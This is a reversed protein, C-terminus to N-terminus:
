GGVGTLVGVRRKRVEHSAAARGRGVVVILKPCDCCRERTTKPSSKWEFAGWWESAEVCNAVQGEVVRLLLEDLYM